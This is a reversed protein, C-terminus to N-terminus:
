QKTLVPVANLLTEKITPTSLTQSPHEIPTIIGGSAGLVISVFLALSIALATTLLYLVITKLATRGFQSSSSINFTGCVLSVFVVPIVLMKLITIFVKGGLDLFGEVLYQFVWSDEPILKMLVGVIIGSVIAIIIQLNLRSASSIDM